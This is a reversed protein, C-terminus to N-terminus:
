KITKKKSTSYGMKERYGPQQWQKIAGQRSIERAEPNEMRKKGLDSLLKRNEEIAYREKLKDSIKKRVTEDELAKKTALNHKKRFEEDRMRALGEERRKSAFEPDEWQSKALLSQKKRFEENHTKGTFPNIYGTKYLEQKSIRMKEKTEETHKRGKMPSTLKGEEYLRKMQESKAIRQEETMKRNLMAPEHAGRINMCNEDHKSRKILEKEILFAQENTEVPFVALSLKNNNEVLSNRLEQLRHNRHKNNSLDRDHEYIRKEIDSTAGIYFKGTESDSLQYVAPQKKISM